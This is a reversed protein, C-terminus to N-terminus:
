REDKDVGKLYSIYKTNEYANRLFKKVITFEDENLVPRYLRDAYKQHIYHLSPQKYQLLEAADKVSIGFAYYLLSRMEGLNVLNYTHLKQNVFVLESANLELFECLKIIPRHTDAFLKKYRKDFYFLVTRVFLECIRNKNYEKYDKLVIGNQNFKVYRFLWLLNILRDLLNRIEIIEEENCVAFTNPNRLSPIRAYNATIGFVEKIDKVTAGFYALARMKFYKMRNYNSLRLKFLARNIIETDTNTFSTWKEVNYPQRDALILFVVEYYKDELVKPVETQRIKSKFM